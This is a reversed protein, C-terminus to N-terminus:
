TKAVQVSQWLLPTAVRQWPSGRCDQSRVPYEPPEAPVAVLSASSIVVLPTVSDKRQMDLVHDHLDSSCILSFCIIKHM